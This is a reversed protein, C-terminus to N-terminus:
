RYALDLAELRIRWGGTGPSGGAGAKGSTAGMSPATLAGLGTGAIYAKAGFSDMWKRERKQLQEPPERYVLPLASLQVMQRRYTAM